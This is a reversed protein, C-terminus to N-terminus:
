GTKRDIKTEKLKFNVLGFSCSLLPAAVARIATIKNMVSLDFKPIIRLRWTYEKKLIEEM